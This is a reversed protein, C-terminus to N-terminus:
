LRKELEDVIEARTRGEVQEFTKGTREEFENEVEQVTEYEDEEALEFALKVAGALAKSWAQGYKDAKEEDVGFGVSLIYSIEEATQQIHEEKIGDEGMRRIVGLQIQLEKGATEVGM